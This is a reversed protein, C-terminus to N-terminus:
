RGGTSPDLQDLGFEVVDGATRYDILGIRKADLALGRARSATCDLASMWGTSLLAEGHFGVAHGLWLAFALATPRAEIQKRIKFTRGSLHGSQTWSSAINRVVKEVTRENMRGGALGSLASRLPTKQFESGIPQALVASASGMLLPDRAIAALIALQARAEADVKWLNCLVRFIPVDRDLAYLESLRQGTLRRTSATPKQLCNGEVIAALYEERPQVGPVHELVQTLEDLM